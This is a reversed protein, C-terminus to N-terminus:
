NSDKKGYSLQVMIRNDIRNDLSTFLKTITIGSYTALSGLVIGAAVISTRWDWLISVKEEVKEIRSISNKSIEEHRVVIDKISRLENLLAEQFDNKGM